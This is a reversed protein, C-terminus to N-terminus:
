QSGGAATPFFVGRVRTAGGSSMTAEGTRTRIVLREGRIVNQGQVVIVEGTFTVTEANFDYDARRAHISQEPTVYFVDGQAELRDTGGCADGRKAQYTTVSQARLRTRDQLVEVNGRFDLRCAQRSIGQEDASVDLPADANLASQAMLAGPAACLAAAALVAPLRRM